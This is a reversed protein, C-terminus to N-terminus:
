HTALQKQLSSLQNQLSTISRSTQARFADFEASQKNEAPQNDLESRVILLDQELRQIAVFPDEQKKLSELDKRLVDFQGGLKANMENHVNTAALLDTKFQNQVSAQATEVGKLQGALQKLRAEQQTQAAAIQKQLQGLELLQKKQQEVLTKLVQTDTSISNETAVVKGSIDQIRGAADESVRAFSEQTAVLRREMLGVQQYSWWALGGLTISLAGLLAWLPGTRVTKSEMALVPVAPQVTPEDLPASHRPEASLSPLEDPEDHTDNRMSYGEFCTFLGVSWATYLRICFRILCSGNVPHSFWGCLLATRKREMASYVTARLVASVTTCSYGIQSDSMVVKWLSLYVATSHNEAQPTLVSVDAVPCVKRNM